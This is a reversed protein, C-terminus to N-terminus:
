TKQSRIKEQLDIIVQNLASNTAKLTRNKLKLIKIYNLMDIDPTTNEKLSKNSEVNLRNWEEAMKEAHQQEDMKIYKLFSKETKHGSAKMIYLTPIKQIYSNTCFSRRGTHSSVVEYKALKNVEIKGRVTSSMQVTDNFGALKVAAKIYENFKQNSIPTPINYNYKELVKRVM